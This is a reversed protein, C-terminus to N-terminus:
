SESGTNGRGLGQEIQDTFAQQWESILHGTRSAAEQQSVEKLISSAKKIFDLIGQSLNVVLGELHKIKDDKAQHEARSRSLEAQLRDIEARSTSELVSPPIHTDQEPIDQHGFDELNWTTVPATLQLPM